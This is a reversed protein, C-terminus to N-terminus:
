LKFEVPICFLTRCTKGNRKGPTWNQMQELVRMVEDDCDQRLPRAIKLNSISGDKEIIFTALVVGELHVNRASRPYRLNKTLWKVFQSMGGPYVPIEELLTLDTVVDKREMPKDDVDKGAIEVTDNGSLAEPEIFETDSTNDVVEIDDNVVSEKEIKKEAVIPSAEEAPVMETTRVINEMSRSIEDVSGADEIPSCELLAVFISVNLGLGIFFWLLSKRELDAKPSKKIEM